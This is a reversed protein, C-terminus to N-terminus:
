FRSVMMIHLKDRETTNLHSHTLTGNSTTQTDSQVSPSSSSSSSSSMSPGDARCRWSSGTPKPWTTHSSCLCATSSSSSSSGYSHPYFRRRTRNNGPTCNSSLKTRLPIPVPQLSSLVNSISPAARVTAVGFSHSHSGVLHTVQVSAHASTPSNSTVENHTYRVGILQQVGIQLRGLDTHPALATHTQIPVVPM